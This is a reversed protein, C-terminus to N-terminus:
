VIDWVDEPYQPPYLYRLGNLQELGGLQIKWIIQAVQNVGIRIISQQVKQRHEPDSMDKWSVTKYVVSIDANEDPAVWFVISNEHSDFTYDTDPIPESNVSVLSISLAKQDFEFAKKVGDGTFSQQVEVDTSSDDAPM